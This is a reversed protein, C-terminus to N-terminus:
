NERSKEYKLFKNIKNCLENPTQNMFSVSEELLELARKQCNPCLLYESLGTNIIVNCSLCLNCGLGGNFKHKPKM